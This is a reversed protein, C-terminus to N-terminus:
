EYREHSLLSTIKIGQCAYMKNNVNNIKFAQPLMEPQVLSCIFM